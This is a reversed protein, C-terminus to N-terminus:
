RRAAEVDRHFVFLPDASEAKTGFNWTKGGRQKVHLRKEAYDIRFTDISDLPITFGHSGRAVYRLTAGTAILTGNCSGVGHQHVADVSAVTASADKPAALTVSVTTAGSEAIDVTQVVPEQGEVQVNLQHTGPTVERAVLPTTGLFKRDLFVYAGSVDSTVHLEPAAAKPAVPESTSTEPRTRPRAAPVVAGIPRESEPRAENDTSPRESPSEDPTTGAPTATSEPEHVVAPSSPRGIYWAAAGALLVAAILIGRRM